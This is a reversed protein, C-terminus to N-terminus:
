EKDEQGAMFTVAVPAPLVYGAAFGTLFAAPSRM